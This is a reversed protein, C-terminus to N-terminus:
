AALIRLPQQYEEHELLMADLNHREGTEKCRLCVLAGPQYQRRVGSIEDECGLNLCKVGGWGETLFDLAIAIREIEHNTNRAQDALLRYMGQEQITAARDVLDGSLVIDTVLSAVAPQDNLLLRLMEESWNSFLKSTGKRFCIDPAWLGERYVWELKALKPVAPALLDILKNVRPSGQPASVASSANTSKGKAM